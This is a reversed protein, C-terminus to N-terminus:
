YKLENQKGTNLKELVTLPFDKTPRGWWKNMKRDWIQWGGPPNAKVCYRVQKKGM